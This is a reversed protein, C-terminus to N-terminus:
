EGHQPTKLEFVGFVFHDKAVPLVAFGGGVVQFGLRVSGFVAQAGEM